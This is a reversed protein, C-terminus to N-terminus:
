LTIFGRRAGDPLTQDGAAYQPWTRRRLRCRGLLLTLINPVATSTYARVAAMDSGPSSSPVRCNTSAERCRYPSVKFYPKLSLFM